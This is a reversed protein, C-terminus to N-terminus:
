RPLTIEDFEIRGRDDPHPGIDYTFGLRRRGVREYASAYLWFAGDEGSDWLRTASSWSGGRPLEAHLIDGTSRDSWVAHVTTGDIALHAVAGDNGTIDPDEMVPEASIVQADGVTGDRITVSRLAGDADLYAIVVVESGADDYRVANTHPIPVESTGSADIRTADSLDGGVTLTRWYLRHALDDQYFLHTVDDAGVVPVPATWSGRTDGVSAKPGYSDPGLRQRYAIQQRGDVLRDSYFVWFRGDSTRALSSFQVVDSDSLDSDVDEDIVWRDPQDAADSTHFAAFWVHVNRTVSVYITSGHQLQWTGELDRASPRNDADVEAWTGGADVSRMMKLQNRDEAPSEVIRYLVGNSDVVPPHHSHAEPEVGDISGPLDGVVDPGADRETGAADRADGPTGGGGDGPDAEGGDGGLGPGVPRRGADTDAAIGEEVGCSALWGLAVGLM